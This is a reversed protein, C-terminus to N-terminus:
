AKFPNKTFAKSEVSTWVYFIFVLGAVILLYDSSQNLLWFLLSQATASYVFFAFLRLLFLFRKQM